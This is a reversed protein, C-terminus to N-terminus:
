ISKLRFEWWNPEFIDQQKEMIVQPTMQNANQQASGGMSGITKQPSGMDDYKNKDVTV